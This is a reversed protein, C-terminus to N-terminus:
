DSSGWADEVAERVREGDELEESLNALAEMDWGVAAALEETKLLPAGAEVVRCVLAVADQPDSIQQPALRGVALARKWLAKRREAPRNIRILRTIMEIMRELVAVQGSTFSARRVQDFALGVVDDFSYHGVKLIVPLERVYRKQLRPPIAKKSLASLIVEMQDMAQMSTTPDNVGPSVGKLAMDTLQRLGFAFDQRSSREKGFYVADHADDESDSGLGDEPAPWIRVVPMGEVVYFGPGHSVEVFKPETSRTVAELLGDADVYQVYGSEKARLVLAEDELWEDDPM